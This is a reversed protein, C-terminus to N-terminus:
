NGGTADSALAAAAAAAPPSAADVVTPSVGLRIGHARFLDHLRRFVERRLIFQEGPKAMFKVRVVYSSPEMRHVGQSKLPQLFNDGIEPDSLMDVGVQKVLKRVREIDTDLPVRLELKMITWDRSYNTVHKIEGFPITNIQGLHHRLRLSRISIREVMGKASGADIYEGLRFADDILFFIGSVIDRVLAQAGFGIAIGIVGAGALLPGIDVGLSSVIIMGVLTALIILAFKRILPLLTQLRTLGAGSGEGDALAQPDIQDQPALRNIATRIVSWAASALILTITIEYFSRVIRQGLSGAAILDFGVDWIDGLIVLVLVALIVRTNRLFVFTLDQANEPMANQAPPPAAADNGAHLSSRAPAALAPAAGAFLRDVLLRVLGQVAPLAILLLLTQVIRPGQRAGTLLNSVFAFTGMGILLCTAFLHWKGAFLDALGQPHDAARPAIALLRSLRTRTMWLVAIMAAINFWLLLAAASQRIPEPLDPTIVAPTLFVSFVVLTALGIGWRFLGRATGDDIATLRLAARQPALVIRAAVAILRVVLFALFAAWFLDRLAPNDPHVIFYVCIGMTAFVCVALADIVASALLAGLKGLDTVPLRATAGGATRFLRRFQFEVIFGAALVIAAGLAIDGLAQPDGNRTLRGFVFALGYPIDPVAVIIEGLRYRLTQATDVVLAVGGAAAQERVVLEERQRDVERLLLARVQADSLLALRDRVQEASLDALSTSEDTVTAM